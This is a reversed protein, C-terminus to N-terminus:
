NSGIRDILGSLYDREYNSGADDMMRELKDVVRDKISHHSSGEYPDMSVYRGTRPSRGRRYSGGRYYSESYGEDMDGNQLKEIKELLCVADTANKLEVPTMDAKKVIKKLESTVLDNLEDLVKEIEKTM